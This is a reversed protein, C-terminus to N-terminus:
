IGIIEFEQSTDAHWMRVYEAHEKSPYQEAEESKNVDKFHYADPNYDGNHKLYKTTKVNQIVYTM